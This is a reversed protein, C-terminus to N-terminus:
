PRRRLRDAAIELIAELGSRLEEERANRLRRRLEEAVEAKSRGNVFTVFRFGFRAEYEANLADLEPLRDAGQERRSADSLRERREGIRPHAALTAVQEAESLEGILSRARDILQAAGAFPAEAALRRALPSGAEFLTEVEVAM